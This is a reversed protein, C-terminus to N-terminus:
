EGRQSPFFRGAQRKHRYWAAGNFIGCKERGAKMMRTMAGPKAAADVVYVLPGSLVDDPKVLEGTAETRGLDEPRVRWFFAFFEMEGQKDWGAVFQNFVAAEIINAQIGGNVSQFPGGCALLFDMAEDVLANVESITLVHGGPGCM